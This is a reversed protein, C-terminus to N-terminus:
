RAYERLLERLKARARSLRSKVTGVNCGLVEALEEQTFGELDLLVITRADVSLQRLAAEIDDAVVGRLRELEEDGRLPEESVLGETSPDDDDLHERVPSTKARRWGDIYLNRLIRFLWARLNTGPLFQGRKGMARTFTEQVLDEAEDDNGTLRRALRFLADLHEFAGRPLPPPHPERLARADYPPLADLHLV